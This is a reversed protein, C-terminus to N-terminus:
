SVEYCCKKADLEFNVNELELDCVWRFAHLLGQAESMETDCIPSFGSWKPSFLIAKIM